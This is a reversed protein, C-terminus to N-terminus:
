APQDLLLTRQAIKWGAHTKRWTDVYVGSWKISPIMEGAPLWTVQTMTRTRATDDTLGLFLTNTQYHRPQIGALRGSFSDSAFERLRERGALHTRPEVEDKRHSDWIGDETFVETWGDVDGSDWTYSYVGIVQEIAFVDELNM